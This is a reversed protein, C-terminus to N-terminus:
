WLHDQNFDFFLFIADIIFGCMSRDNFQQRIQIFNIRLFFKVFDQKILSILPSFQFFEALDYLNSM